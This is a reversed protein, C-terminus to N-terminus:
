KISSTAKSAADVPPEATVVPDTWKGVSQLQDRLETRLLGLELAKHAQLLAREYDKLDFYVLGVNYQTFPNGPSSTSAQELQSFAEALRKNKSLYQAYVM